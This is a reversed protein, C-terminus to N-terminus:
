PLPFSVLDSSVLVFLNHYVNLISKCLNLFLIGKNTNLFFQLNLIEVLHVYTEPSAELNGDDNADGQMEFHILM